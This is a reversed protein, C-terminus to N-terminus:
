IRGSGFIYVLVAGFTVLGVSKFLGHYKYWTTKLNKTLKHRHNHALVASLLTILIIFLGAATIPTISKVAIGFQSLINVSGNVGPSNIVGSTGATLSEVARGYLAVVLTVPRDDIEGSVVAFGVDQYDGNIVNDRHEPSDMWALVVADSTNYNKALNEGAVDYNYDVDTFWKWPGVGDPSDHSWYQKDLMDQAKMYAAQSLKDSLVLREVGSNIRAKNTDDLLSNVTINSERGLVGGTSAINYGAQLGLVVFVVAVLGYRRIIHPRFGNKKHPIVVLGISYVVKDVVKKLNLKKNTKLKV